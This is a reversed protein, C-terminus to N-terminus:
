QASAVPGMPFHTPSRHFYIAPGAIVSKLEDWRMFYMGDQPDALQAGQQNTYVLVVMHNYRRNSTFNVTLLMPTPLTALQDVRADVLQVDVGTGSLRRQLGEVTRFTTAGTMPRTNTYRAMQAETSHYGMLNLATASAASVCSYDQSQLLIHSMGPYAEFATPDPTRQIMWLGSQLFLVMGVIVGVGLLARQRLRCSRTWAIGLILMFFPVSATGELYQLTGVPILKAALAPNRQLWSCVCICLLAIFLIMMSYFSSWRGLRSGAILSLVAMTALGFFWLTPGDM